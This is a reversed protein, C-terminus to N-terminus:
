FEDDSHSRSSSSGRGGRRRGTNFTNIIEDVIDDRSPLSGATSSLSSARQRGALNADKDPLHQHHNTNTTAESADDQNRGGSLLATAQEFSRGFYALASNSAAGTAAVAATASPLSASPM